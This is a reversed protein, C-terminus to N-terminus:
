PHRPATTIADRVFSRFRPLGIALNAGVLWVWMFPSLSSRSGVSVLLNWNTVPRFPGSSFVVRNAEVVISSPHVRRLCNALHSPLAVAEVEQGFDVTGSCTLALKM